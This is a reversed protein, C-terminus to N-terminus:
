VKTEGRNLLEVIPESDSSQRRTVEWTNWHSSFGEHSLISITSLFKISEAFTKATGIQLARRDTRPREAFTRNFTPHEPFDLNLFLDKLRTSSALHHTLPPVPDEDDNTRALPRYRHIELLSVTPLARMLRAMLTEEGVRDLTDGVTYSIKLIELRPLNLHQFVASLESASPITTRVCKDSAGYMGPIPYARLDLEALSEPLLQYVLDNAVPTSMSLTHLEHVASRGLCPHVGSAFISRTSVDSPAAALYLRLEQLRPAWGEFFGQWCQAMPSLHGQVCFERLKPFMTSSGSNNAVDYIVRSALEAPLELVELAPRFLEVLVVLNSVEVAGQVTDRRGYSRSGLPFCDTFPARYIFTRIKPSSTKLDAKTFVETPVRWTSDCIELTHIEPLALIVSLLSSWAGFFLANTLKFTHLFPMCPLIKPLCDTLQEPPGVGDLSYLDM